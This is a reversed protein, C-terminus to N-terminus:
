ENTRNVRHGAMTGVSRIEIDDDELKPAMLGMGQRKRKSEGSGSAGAGPAMMGGRAASAGSASAAAGASKLGAAMGTAGSLGNPIIQAQVPTNTFYSGGGAVGAGITGATVGGAALGAGLGGAGRMSAFSSGTYGASSSGGYSGTGGTGGPVNPNTPVDQSDIDIVPDDNNPPLPIDPIDWPDPRPGPPVIPIDVPEPVLKPIDPEDHSPWDDSWDNPYPNPYPYEHDDSPYDPYYPSNEKNNNIQEYARRYDDNQTSNNPDYDDYIDPVGDGDSDVWIDPVGDMNYDYYDPSGDGNLDYAGDGLYTGPGDVRTDETNGQNDEDGEPYPNNEPGPIPDVVTGFDGAVNKFRRQVDDLLEGAKKERNDRLMKNIRDVPHDWGTFKLVATSLVPVVVQIATTAGNILATSTSDLKNGPLSDKQSEVFAIVSNAQDEINRIAAIQSSTLTDYHLNVVNNGYTVAADSTAGQFDKSGELSKKVENVSQQADTAAEENQLTDSMQWRPSRVIANLTQENQGIDSSSYDIVSNILKEVINEDDNQKKSSM